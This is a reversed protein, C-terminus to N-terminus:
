RCTTGPLGLRLMAGAADQRRGQERRGYQGMISLRVEADLIFTFPSGRRVHDGHESDELLAAWQKTEIIRRWKAILAPDLPRMAEWRDLVELARLAREPHENLVAVAAQHLALRRQHRRAM